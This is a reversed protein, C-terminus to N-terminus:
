EVVLVGFVDKDDAAPSKGKNGKKKPMVVEGWHKPVASLDINESYAANRCAVYRM